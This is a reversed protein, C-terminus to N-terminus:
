LGGWLEAIDGLFVGFWGVIEGGVERRALTLEGGGQVELGGPPYFSIARWPFGPRRCRLPAEGGGGGRERGEGGGRRGGKGRGGGRAGEEGGGRRGGGGEKSLSKEKERKGVEGSGAQSGRWGEMEM